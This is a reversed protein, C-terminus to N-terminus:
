RPLRVRVCTGRTVEPDIWVSGGLGTVLKRVTALGLGHGDGGRALRVHRAFVRERDAPAIGIGNDRVAIEVANASATAEIAIRPVTDPRRYRVANEVVNEFIRYCSAEDAPVRPLSGVAIEAGADAIDAHLAEVVDRMVAALDTPRASAAAPAAARTGVEAVLAAELLAHARSSARAAHEAAHRAAEPLPGFAEELMLDLYSCVTVIPGRVDHAADAASARLASQESQLTAVQALLERHSERMAYLHWGGTLALGGHVALALASVVAPWGAHSGAAALAIGTFAAAFVVSWRGLDPLDSRWGTALAAPSRAAM